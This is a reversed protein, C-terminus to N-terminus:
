SDVIKSIRDSVKLKEVFSNFSPLKLFEDQRLVMYAVLMDKDVSELAQLLDSSFLQEISNINKVFVPKIGDKLWKKSIGCNREILILYGDNISNRNIAKRLTDAKLGISEAVKQATTDGEDLAIKFREKMEM